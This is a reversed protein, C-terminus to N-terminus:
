RTGRRAAPPMAAPASGSVNVTSAGTVTGTVTANSQLNTVAIEDGLGADALARGRATLQMGPQSVILTVLAGKEILRPKALDKALIPQGPKLDRRVALGILASPEVVANVPTRAEDAEAWSLDAAAITEGRAIRRTLVPVPQLRRIEGTLSMRGIFREGDTVKLVAAFARAPPRYSLREVGLSATPPLRLDQPVDNLTLDAGALDIGRAAFAALIPEALIRGDVVVGDDRGIDLREASSTPRWDVGYARALRTLTGADLSVRGGPAPATAVVADARPGVASAFIDGLRIEPGAITVQRVIPTGPTPAARQAMAPAAVLTAALVSAALRPARSLAIM